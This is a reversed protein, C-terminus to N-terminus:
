RGSKLVNIQCLRQQQLNEKCIKSTLKLTHFTSLTATSKFHCQGDNGHDRSTWTPSRFSYFPRSGNGPQIPLLDKFLAKTENSKTNDM